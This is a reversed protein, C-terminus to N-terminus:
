KEIPTDMANGWENWSGDYSKVQPYGLLQKLVFWTHASRVGIACYTVAEKDPTAGHSSYISQLEEASKFSGDAVNFSQEYYLHTAGPIHGSREHEKAPEMMFWEGSYEQPTRVDLLVRPKQSGPNQVEARSARISSDPQGVTYTTPTITPTEISVPRHEAVWKARTGNLARVDRHGFLKFYWFVWPAVAPHGSCAIVTTDNTIGAEGFLAAVAAPETVIRLNPNLITAFPNWYIAGPIHGSNYSTQDMDVDIIRLKPDHLHDELWQTEVLVEPHAYGAM